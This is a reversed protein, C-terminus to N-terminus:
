IRPGPHVPWASSTSWMRDTYKPPSHYSGSLKLAAQERHLLARLMLFVVVEDRDHHGDHLRAQIIICGRTSAYAGM